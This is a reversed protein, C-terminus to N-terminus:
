PANIRQMISKALRPKEADKFYHYLLLATLVYFICTGMFPILYNEAAILLGSLYTSVSIAIYNGTMMMGLALGQEGPKIQEMQFSTTAPGAMNIFFVYAVYAAAAPLFSQSLAILMVFPAAFIKSLAASRVKGIRSALYPTVIFGALM